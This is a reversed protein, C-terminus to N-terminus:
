HLELKGLEEIISLVLSEGQATMGKCLVDPDREGDVLRRVIGGVRGMDGGVRTMQEAMNAVLQLAEVNGTAAAHIMHALGPAAMTPDAQADPDPLSAPNQLGRLIAEVIVTDEEDLGDFVSRDRAGAIVRRIAAVLDTWGNQATVRLAEEIQPLLDRNQIAQVVGVILGAHAQIIQQARPPLEAM